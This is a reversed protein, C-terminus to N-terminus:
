RSPCLAANVGPFAILVPPSSTGRGDIRPERPMSFRSRLCRCSRCSTAPRQAGGPRGTSSGAAFLVYVTIALRDSARRGQLRPSPGDAVASRPSCSSLASSFLGRRASFSSAGCRRWARCRSVSCAAPTSPRSVRRPGQLCVRHAVARRLRAPPVVAGAPPRRDGRGGGLGPDVSPHPPRDVRRFHSGRPARDPLRRHRSGPRRAAWCPSCATRHDRPSRRPSAAADLRRTVLVAAPAHGFFVTAYAWLPTALAVIVALGSRRFPDVGPVGTVIVFALGATPLAVLLLTLLHRLPWFPRFAPTRSPLCCRASSSFHGTRRPDVARPGQGLLHARRPPCRGGVPRLGACRTRHRSPCRRSDRCRARDPSVRQPKHRSARRRSAARLARRNGAASCRDVMPEPDAAHCYTRTGASLDESM